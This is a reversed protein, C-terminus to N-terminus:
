KAPRANDKGLFKGSDRSTRGDHEGQQPVIFPKIRPQSLSQDVVTLPAQGDCQVTTTRGLTSFVCIYTSVALAAALVARAPQHTTTM